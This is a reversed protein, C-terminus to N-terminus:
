RSSYKYFHNVESKSLYFIIKSSVRESNSNMINYVDLVSLIKIIKEINDISIKM